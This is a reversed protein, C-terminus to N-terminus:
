IGNVSLAGQVANLLAFNQGSIWSKCQLLFLLWNMQM